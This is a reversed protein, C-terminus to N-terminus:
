NEKANPVFFIVVICGILGLSLIVWRLTGPGMIIFSSFLVMISMFALVGVKGRRTIGKRRQYNKIRPGLIKNNLLWNYLRPSSKAYLFASLLALPTVPLGPVIIGLIALVLSATGGIVYLVRVTRNKKIELKVEKESVSISIDQVSPRNHLNSNQDM